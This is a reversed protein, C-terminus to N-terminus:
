PCLTAGSESSSGSGFATLWLSLDNSSVVGDGDYDSRGIYVGRGFDDLWLSLDGTGLGGNGDLDYIAVPIDHGIVIGDALINARSPGPTGARGTSGGVVCFRVHGDRFDPTFGASTAPCAAGSSAGSRTSVDLRCDPCNALNVWVPGEAWPNNSLHRVLIDFNGTTTDPGALSRGVLAIHTPCISNAPSPAGAQASGVTAALLLTAWNISLARM